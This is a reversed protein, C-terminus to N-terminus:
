GKLKKRLEDTSMEEADEEADEHASMPQGCSPCMGKDKKGKGKQPMAIEMSSGKPLKKALELIDGMVEPKMEKM